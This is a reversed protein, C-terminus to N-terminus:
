RHWGGSDPKAGQISQLGWMFMREGCIRGVLVITLPAAVNWLLLILSAEVNHLLSLVAASLGAVALASTVAISTRCHFAAHRLMVLMPFALSPVILVLAAVAGARMASPELSVWGSLCRYAIASQWLVVAPVPAWAWITPRDPLSLEFAAVAAIAGTLLTGTLGLVFVPDGLREQLDTRVGHLVLVLALIAVALAIWLVARWLPQFPRVPAAHAALVRILDSTNTM